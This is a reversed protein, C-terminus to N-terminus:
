QLWDQNTIMLAEQVTIREGENYATVFPGDFNYQSRIRERDNRANKYESHTGTTYKVWGEHNELNFNESFNHRSRFYSKGVTNPGAVIQVRYSVGTEPSPISTSTTEMVEEVEEVAATTTEVIEEETEEVVEAISETSEEPVDIMEAIDEETEEVIEEAAETNEATSEEVPVISGQIQEQVEEPLTAVSDTESEESQEENMALVEEAAGGMTDIAVSTPANDLVYSFTGDIELPLNGTTTAVYVVNLKDTDPTQFWVYKITTGDISVVSGGSNKDVISYTPPLKEQIKAYGEVDMGQITVKVQYENEGLQTIERYCNSNYEASGTEAITETSEESATETTEETSEENQAIADGGLEVIRSDLEFDIRDNDDIYSFTGEITKTGSAAAGAILNYKVIIEEQSPLSMWIFKAKQQSFTFSAGNTEVPTVTLGEPMELQLKAFGSISGKNITVSVEVSEGPSMSAPITDTVNVDQLIYGFLLIGALNIIGLAIKLM